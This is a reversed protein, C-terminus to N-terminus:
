LFDERRPTFTDILVGAAVAKCGHTTDSPIVLSDGPNLQYQQDGVTFEFQGSKVYTSQTHPHQHLEGVANRDFAFEVIMMEPNEALVQRSVGDAAQVRPYEKIRM